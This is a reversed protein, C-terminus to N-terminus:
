ATGTEDAIRQLAKFATESNEAQHIFGGVNLVDVGGFVLQAANQDDIGGDWGIELGPKHKKLFSVKGLLKLDARGGYHGLDGSFILVHNILRLAPLITQPKTAPLLAVGIRVRHEHCFKALQAFDGDAEAHVIILHPKHKIITKVAGAPQRYMLHFDAKVGAPWWAEGPKVTATKAFGGDTLDIQLRHAFHAVRKIEQEYRQSDAALITPCVIPM